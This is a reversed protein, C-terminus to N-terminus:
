LGFDVAKARPANVKPKYYIYINWPSSTKTHTVYIITSAKILIKIYCRPLYPLEKKKQKEILPFATLLLVM